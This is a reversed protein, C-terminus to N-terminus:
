AALQEIRARLDQVEHVLLTVIANYNIGKIGNEDVTVAEPFVEEVEEAIFGVDEGDYWGTELKRKPDPVPEIYAGVPSGLQYDDRERTWHEEKPTHERGKKLKFRRPRMQALASRENTLDRIDRKLERSSSVTFHAAFHDYGTSNVAHASIDAFYSTAGLTQSDCGYNLRLPSQCTILGVAGQGGMLITDAFLYGQGVSADGLQFFKFFSTFYNDSANPGAELQLSGQGSWGRTPPEIILSETTSGSHAFIQGQKTTSGDWFGVAIKNGSGWGGSSFISTESIVVRQGSSATRFLGGTITAANIQSGQITSTSTITAASVTGSFTATGSSDLAFQVVGGSYCRIGQFNIWLGNNPPDGVRVSGNGIFIDTGVGLTGATLKDATLSGTQIRSASLFGATIKAANLDAVMMSDNVSGALAPGAVTSWAGVNGSEDIARVRAYYNTVTIIGDFSYIQDNTFVDGVIATFGVDTAIQIQYEGRGSAVDAAQGTTLPTFKVVVSTAGRGITVSTVQPPVTTDKTSVVTQYTAPSPGNRSGYFNVATVRFGYTTNPELARFRVSTGGVVKIDALAFVGPSTQKAMEVEYTAASADAPAGWTVDIFIDDMYAGPVLALPAGATQGPAPTIASIITLDLYDTILDPVDDPHVATPDTNGMNAPGNTTTELVRVRGALNNLADGVDEKVQVKTM